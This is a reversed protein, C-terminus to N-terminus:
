CSPQYLLGEDEVVYERLLHFLNWDEFSTTEFLLLLKLLVSIFVQLHKAILLLQQLVPSGRDNMIRKRLM